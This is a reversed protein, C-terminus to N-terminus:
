LQANEEVDFEPDTELAPHPGYLRWLAPVSIFLTLAVAISVVALWGYFARSSGPKVTVQELEDKTAVFMVRDSFSAPVLLYTRTTQERAGKGGSNMSIILSDPSQARLAEKAGPMPQLAGLFASILFLVLMGPGAFIATMTLARRLPSVPQMM